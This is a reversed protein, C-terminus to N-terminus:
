MVPQTHLTQLAPQPDVLNKDLATAESGLGFALAMLQTFYLIPIPEDLAMQHQRADLNMHCLPCAVVVADAGVARADELIQRSLGLAIDTNTVSLSAGCCSTKYSWDVSEAGLADVLHDMEMPYEPNEAGTVEPPRTLLCGYYSVVKLGELPTKVNEAVADLGVRKAIVDLLSRIAVNGQYEYGVAADVEMKLEPDREIDHVAMKFRSFCAACPLTVEELGSQELIALNRMPLEAALSRDVKHAASSGCCVWGEPEVLDLALSECVARTSTDFEAATSHLSCGPYYGIRNDAPEVPEVKRPPRAFSPLFSIKRKRIMALGMPLDKFPQGTRMNMEAMLGLEYGRGLINIDRLFVKNFLAAERVKPELGREEAAMKLQDMIGAIDLGQPCRTTCTECGACLWITKSDLALGDQGLQLARMVQNPALDFYEALPCGSTCKVCQYCLFVNEDMERQITQALGAKTTSTLEVM